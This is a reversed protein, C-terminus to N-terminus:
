GGDVNDKRDYGVAHAATFGDCDVLRSHEGDYSSMACSQLPTSFHELFLIELHGERM